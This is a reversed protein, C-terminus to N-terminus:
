IEPDFRCFASANLMTFNSVLSKKLFRMLTDMFYIVYQMNERCRAARCGATDTDSFMVTKSTFLYM